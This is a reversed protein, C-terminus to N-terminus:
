GGGDGSPEVVGGLGRPAQVFGALAFVIDRDYDTPDFAEAGYDALDEYEFEGDRGASALRFTDCGESSAVERWCAYRIPNGWGDVAPVEQLYEPVLIPALEAVAGVDPYAFGESDTAYSALGVGLERLDALTRKQRAKHLADLFNPVLIAAVIGTFAVAGLCGCGIIVALLPGPMGKKRAEAAQAALPRGCKPCATAGDGVPSGCHECYRM